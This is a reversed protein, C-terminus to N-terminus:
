KVYNDKRFELIAGEVAENFGSSTYTAGAITDPNVYSHNILKGKFTDIAVGGIAPTEEHVTDISKIIIEGKKNVVASITVKIENEFGEGTGQYFKPKKLSELVGFTIGVIIFLFILPKVIKERVNQYNSNLPM